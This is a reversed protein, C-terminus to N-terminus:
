LKNQYPMPQDVLSQKVNVNETEIETATPISKCCDWTYGYSGLIIKVKVLSTQM